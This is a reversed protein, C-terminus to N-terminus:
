SFRKSGVGFKESRVCFDFKPHNDCTQISSNVSTWEQHHLEDLFTVVPKGQSFDTVKCANRKIVIYTANNCRKVVDGGVTSAIFLNKM